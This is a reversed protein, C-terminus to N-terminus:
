MRGPGFDDYLRHLTSWEGPVISPDFVFRGEDCGCLCAFHRETEFVQQQRQQPGKGRSRHEFGPACSSDYEAPWGQGDLM